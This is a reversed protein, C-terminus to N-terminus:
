LWYITFGVKPDIVLNTYSGNDVGATVCQTIRGWREDPREDGGIFRDHGAALHSVFPSTWVEVGGRLLAAYFSIEAAWCLLQHSRALNEVCFHRLLYTIHYFVM